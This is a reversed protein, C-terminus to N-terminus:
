INSIYWKRSPYSDWLRYRQFGSTVIMDFTLCNGFGLLRLPNSLETFQSIDFMHIMRYWSLPGSILREHMRSLTNREWNSPDYTRVGLSDRVELKEITTWSGNVIWSSLLDVQVQTDIKNSEFHNRTKRHTLWLFDIRLSDIVTM